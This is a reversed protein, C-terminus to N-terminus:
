NNYREFEINALEYVDIDFDLCISEMQSLCEMKNEALVAFNILRLLESRFINKEINFTNLDINTPDMTPKIVMDYLYSFEKGPYNRLVRGRRQIYQRPNGTSSCFIAYQTQPIDVGEDLCKMALLAHIKGSKFQQIIEQRDKSEGTYTRLKLGFERYLLQTYHQILQVDTLDSYELDNSLYYPVYGEPVYIFGNKFNEAGIEKIIKILCNEKEHAKHIIRKREMQLKKSIPNDFYKGNQFDFHKKLKHTIKTYENLENKSLEIFKPYYFYRCLLDEDIAKKMNFSFTYHPPTSNFYKAIEIDGVDDYQREPTASLGIRKLIKYPFVNIISSSGMTHAEDAILTMNKMQSEFYKNFLNQFKNTRFTAYTTLICFNPVTGFFISKGIEMIESKWIKNNSSCIIIDKFNFRESIENEWQNALSITPVLVIFRYYKNIRYDELICNLSAVTKGTGTAMAFLGMHSNEKWSKYAKIQHPLPSGNKFYPEHELNKILEEFRIKRKEKVKKVKEDLIDYTFKISDELLDKIEKERGISNIVVEIETSDIFRYDKHEKNFIKDFNFKENDIRNQFIDGMWSPDVSFSESNKILANYTFNISGDTRLYNEGDFLIMRKSHSLDVNKFKVPLIILRNYKILYKLCDFFHQNHESLNKQLKELDSFINILRDDDSLDSNEILNEKDSISMVHNTIIRISGGYYIFEAFSESIARIANSSFYGLLLDIKKARPFAEEYFEIPPHDSDSKYCYDDPFNIEKFNM